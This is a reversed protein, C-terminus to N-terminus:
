QEMKEAIKTALELADRGASGTVAPDRRTRVADVFDVLERRLPEDNVVPIKGGQISPRGASGDGDARVLRYVEVDQAAYDISV